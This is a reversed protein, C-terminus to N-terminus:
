PAKLYRALAAEVLDSVSTGARRARDRLRQLMERPLWVWTRALTTARTRDPGHITETRRLHAQLRAMAIDEADLAVVANRLKAPTGVAPRKPGGRGRRRASPKSAM